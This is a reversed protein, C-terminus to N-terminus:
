IVGYREMIHGAVTGTMLYVFVLTLQPALCPECDIPVFAPRSRCVFVFVRLDSINVMDGLRPSNIKQSHAAPQWCTLLPTTNAASKVWHGHDQASVSPRRTSEVDPWDTLGHRPPGPSALYSAVGAPRAAPAPAPTLTPAPAGALTLTLSVRTEPESPGPM